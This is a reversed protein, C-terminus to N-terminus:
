DVKRRLCFLRLLFLIYFSFVLKTALFCLYPLYNIAIKAMKVGNIEIILRLIFLNPFTFDFCKILSTLSDCICRSVRSLNIFFLHADVKSCHSHLDSCVHGLNIPRLELKIVFELLYCFSVYRLIPKQQAITLHKEM